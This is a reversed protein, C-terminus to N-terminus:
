DVQWCDLNYKIFLEEKLQVGDSNEANHAHVFFLVSYTYADGEMPVDVTDAVEVATTKSAGSVTYWTKASGDDIAYYITNTAFAGTNFGGHVADTGIFTAPTVTPLVQTNGQPVRPLTTFSYDSYGAPYYLTTMDKNYSEPYDLWFDMSFQRSVDCPEFTLTFKAEFVYFYKNEDAMINEGLSFSSFTVTGGDFSAIKGTSTGDVATVYRAEYRLCFPTSIMVLCLLGLVIRWLYTHLVNQKM